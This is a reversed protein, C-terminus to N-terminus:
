ISLDLTGGDTMAGAAANWVRRSATTAWAGKSRSIDYRYWAAPDGHGAEKMSASPVGVVPVPGWPSEVHAVSHRHNHGHIVLEAGERALLAAMEAADTLAKRPIAQGPLPPHHIMVVRYYGRERLSKLCQGAAAIQAEGLTGAAKHLPQPCATSLGIFALNRRLRVYPFPKAIFASTVAAPVTMDGTMWPALHGLGKEWPVHVYADHNGPTFSLSAAPGFPRLWDAARPFEGPAAINVVDGTFAIHDPRAAVIDKRLADAVEPLHWHRRRFHWSAGGVLRKLAFDGLVAGAPLPGLHADSFHALSFAL